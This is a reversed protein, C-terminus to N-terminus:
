TLGYRKIKRWLTARSIGLERAASIRNGRNEELVRKVIEAEAKEFPHKEELPVSPRTTGQKANLEKPLCDLEIRNGSCLIFAHEIINELERVNGPFDYNLLFHIAQESVRSIQKGSRANFKQIFASILLPIDERRQSLPPLDIRVVNLRYFLDDRFKGEKTLKALDKNTAAIIRVDAKKPSTSGLPEYEKEQLVRLLKVQLSPSMEAVEDLFLTGGHALAFRGPKDKKADTFAGKVYGFLESELLPDPLAGCNVQILPKAKRQSLNHIAKAFLEKGTGSAGQILVTSDSEAINPLISFIERILHNKSVIDGLTYKESLEKKLEELTSLDRFTEVGGIIRGKENKLVATSISIPIKQGQKNLITVPLNVIEKKTKITEQLACRSQCIDARFIDFCHRGVADKHSFGTIQQAAKNIFTIKGAEDTTFVGDAISNLIVNSFRDLEKKNM